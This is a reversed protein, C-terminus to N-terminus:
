DHHSSSPPCVSVTFISEDRESLRTFLTREYQKSNPLPRDDIILVTVAHSATLASALGCTEETGHLGLNRSPRLWEADYVFDVLVMASSPKSQHQLLRQMVEELSM